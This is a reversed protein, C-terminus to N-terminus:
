EGQGAQAPTDQQGHAPEAREIIVIHRDGVLGPVDVSTVETVSWAGPLSALEAAPLRGKMALLRGGNAVLAGCREVFESLSSFARCVVTDYPVGPRYDEVRSQVVQVNGLALEGVAHRVFRVKKGGADLLCFERRPEAIALPVGPFGAGTGVDLISLGHLFPQATLSDLIHRAIMEEPDRVATLNFAQNWKELLVLFRALVKSHADAEASGMTEGMAELGARLRAEFGVDVTLV